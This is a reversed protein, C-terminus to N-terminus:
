TYVTVWLGTDTQKLRDTDAQKCRDTHPLPFCPHFCLTKAHISTLCPWVTDPSCTESHPNQLNTPFPNTFVWDWTHLAKPPNVLSTTDNWSLQLTINIEMAPSIQLSLIAEKLWNQQFLNHNLGIHLQFTNGLEAIQTVCKTRSSAHLLRCSGSYSKSPNLEQEQGRRVAQPADYCMFPFIYLAQTWLTNVYPSFGPRHLFCIQLTQFSRLPHHHSPHILHRQLIYLATHNQVTKQHNLIHSLHHLATSQPPKPMHLTLTSITPHRGTSIHHHSTRTPAPLSPSFSHPIIYLLQTELRFPYYEPIYPSVKYRSFGRVRASRPLFPRKLFLYHHHHHHNRAYKCALIYANFHSKDGHRWAM